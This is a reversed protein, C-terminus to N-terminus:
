GANYPYNVAEIHTGIKALCRIRLIYVTKHFVARQNARPHHDSRQQETNPQPLSADDLLDPANWDPPKPMAPLLQRPLIVPAHTKSAAPITIKNEALDNGKAATTKLMTMENQRLM